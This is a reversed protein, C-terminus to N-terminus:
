DRAEFVTVRLRPRESGYLEQLAPRGGPSACSGRTAPDLRSEWSWRWCVPDTRQRVVGLEPAELEFFLRSRGSGLELPVPLRTLAEGDFLRKWTGAEHLEIRLRARHMRAAAHMGSGGFRVVVRDPRPVEPTPSLPPVRSGVGLEIAMGGEGRQPVGFPYLWAAQDPVVRVTARTISSEMSDNQVAEGGTEAANGTFRAAVLDAVLVTTDGRRHVVFDGDFRYHVQQRQGGPRVIVHFDTDPGGGAYASSPIRSGDPQVSWVQLTIYRRDPGSQAAATSVTCLLLTATITGLRSM